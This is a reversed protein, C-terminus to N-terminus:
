VNLSLRVAENAEEMINVPCEGIKSKIRKKSITFIVGTDAISTKKLGTQMGKPILVQVPYLDPSSISSSIMLVITNEGYRNGIDNQIVLAPRRKSRDSKSVFPFDLLVIDGKKLDM